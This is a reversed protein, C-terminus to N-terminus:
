RTPKPTATREYLDAEDAIEVPDAASEASETSETEGAEDAPEVHDAAQEDERDSVQVVERPGSSPGNPRM